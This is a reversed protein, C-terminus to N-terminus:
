ACGSVQQQLAIAPNHDATQLKYAGNSVLQQLAIAPDHDATALKYACNSVIQPFAFPTFQMLIATQM